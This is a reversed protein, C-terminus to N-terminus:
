LSEEAENEFMAAITRAEIAARSNNEAMLPRNNAHHITATADYAHAATRLASVIAQRTQPTM